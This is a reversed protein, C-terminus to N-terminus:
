QFFIFNFARSNSGSAEFNYSMFEQRFDLFSHPVNGIRKETNGEETTLFSIDDHSSSALEGEGLQGSTSLMEQWNM